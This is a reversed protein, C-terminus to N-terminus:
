LKWSSTSGSFTKSTSRKNNGEEREKVDKEFCYINEKGKLLTISIAIFFQPLLLTTQRNYVNPLVICLVKIKQYVKIQKKGVYILIFYM